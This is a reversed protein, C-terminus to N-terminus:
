LDSPRNSPFAPLTRVIKPEVGCDVSEVLERLERPTALVALRRRGEPDDGLQRGEELCVRVDFPDRGDTASDPLHLVDQALLDHALEFLRSDRRERIRTNCSPVLQCLRGREGARLKAFSAARAPLSACNVSAQRTISPRPSSAM